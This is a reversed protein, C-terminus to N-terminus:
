SAAGFLRTLWGRKAPRPEDQPAPTAVPPVAQSQGPLEDKTAADPVKLALCADVTRESSDPLHSANRELHRFYASSRMRVPADAGIRQIGIKSSLWIQEALEGDSGLVSDEYPLLASSIPLVADPSARWVNWLRHRGNGLAKDWVDARPAEWESFWSTVIQREAATLFETLAYLHVGMPDEHRLSRHAQNNLQSGLDQVVSGILRWRVTDRDHHHQHGDETDPDTLWPM